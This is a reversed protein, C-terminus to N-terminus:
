GTASGAAGNTSTPSFVIAARKTGFTGGSSLHSEDTVESRNQDSTQYRNRGPSAGGHSTEEFSLTISIQLVSFSAPM